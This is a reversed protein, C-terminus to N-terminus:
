PKIIYSWPSVYAGNLRVSFHLHNGTSRGTSGVAAIKDGRKVTDGTNCYLASAHMYITYLSNGHDIMVYNGMTSSYAASVVEGDYAALIASGGPAALDVGNHFQQVNLIPHLRYGYDDSVRTYSPCPWIFTGGDYTRVLGAEAELRAREQAVAKELAEIEATMAELEEEFENLVTQKNSIDTEYATIEKKKESILEDLAAEEAEQADQADELIEQELELQRECLAIEECTQKFMDLMNRDYASMQEIYDAKNLFDAFSGSSFLVEWMVDSESEYIFRIREKMSQYQAEQIERAEELEDRTKEIETKKVSIQESLEAIRAQVESLNADLETVYGELNTKSSKLNSIIKKTDTVGSQLSEKEKLAQKIQEEKEKISESTIEKKEDQLAYAQTGSIRLCSILMCASLSLMAMKKLMRM